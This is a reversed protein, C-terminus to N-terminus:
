QDDRMNRYLDEYRKASENWSFDQNMAHIMLPRWRRYHTYQETAREITQEIAQSTYSHFVFGTNHPADDEQRALAQEQHGAADTDIVTDALGGTAHVLPLTGYRLAYMQTLGCPEFRSPVLLIDAGAQIQHARAEQVAGV